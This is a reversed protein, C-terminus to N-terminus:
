YQMVYVKLINMHLVLSCAISRVLHIIYYDLEQVYKQNSREAIRESM